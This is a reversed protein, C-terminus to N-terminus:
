IYKKLVEILEFADNVIHDPQAQKMLSIHAHNKAHTAGLFGIVKMKAEKAAKIGLFHDEIVLCQEHPVNHSHAAKVFIDPAPKRRINDQAGFIYDDNFYTQLGTIQLTRKIYNLDGNSAICKQIKMSNLFKLVVEINDVSKLLSPYSEETKQSIKKLDIDIDPIKFEVKLIDTITQNHNICSFLELTQEATLHHGLKSIEDSFIQHWLIESNILVGDNDFLVLKITM